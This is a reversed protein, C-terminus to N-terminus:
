PKAGRRRGTMIFCLLERLYPLVNRLNEQRRHGHWVSDICVLCAPYYVCHLFVLKAYVPLFERFVGRGGLFARMDALSDMADCRLMVDSSVSHDRRIYTYVVEPCLAVRPGCGLAKYVFVGDEFMRSAPFAIGNALLFSKRFLKNWVPALIDTRNRLPIGPREDALVSFTTSRRSVVYSAIVMDADRRLAARHLNELMDPAPIDDADAFAVYEGSAAAIGLQRARGTGVSVANAVLRVRGPHERAYARCLADSGDASGDDVLVIEAAAMTQVLLREMAQPLYAAANRVPVIVSVAVTM